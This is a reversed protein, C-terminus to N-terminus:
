AREGPAPRLAALDRAPRAPAARLVAARGAGASSICSARRMPERQAAPPAPRPAAAPAPPPPRRRAPPARVIYHFNLKLGAFRSFDPTHRYITPFGECGPCPVTGALIPQPNPVIRRPAARRRARHPSALPPSTATRQV